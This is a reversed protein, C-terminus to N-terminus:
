YPLWASQWHILGVNVVPTRWTGVRRWILVFPGWTVACLAAISFVLAFSNLVIYAVFVGYFCEAWYPDPGGPTTIYGVYAVNIVLVSSIGIAVIVADRAKRADKGDPPLMSASALAAPQM